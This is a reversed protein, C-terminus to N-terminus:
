TLATMALSVGTSLALSMVLRSAPRTMSERCASLSGNQDADTKGEGRTRRDVQEHCRPELVAERLVPVPPLALLPLTQLGTASRNCWVYPSVGRSAVFRTVLEARILSGSTKRVSLSNAICFRLLVFGTFVFPPTLHTKIDHHFYPPFARVFKPRQQYM